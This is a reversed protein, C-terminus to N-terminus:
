PQEDEDMDDAVAHPSVTSVVQALLVDLDSTTLRVQPTLHIPYAAVTHGEQDLLIALHGVTHTLKAVYSFAPNVKADPQIRRHHRIAAAIIREEPTVIDM